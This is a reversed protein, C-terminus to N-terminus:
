VPGSRRRRRGKAVPFSVSMCTPSSTPSYRRRGPLMDWVQDGGEMKAEHDRPSPEAHAWHGLEAGVGPIWHVRRNCRRCHLLLRGLERELEDETQLLEALPPAELGLLPDFTRDFRPTSTKPMAALRGRAPGPRPFQAGYLPAGRTMGHERAAPLIPGRVSDARVPVPRHRTTAGGSELDPCAAVEQAREGRGKVHAGVEDPLHVLMGIGTLVGLHEHVEISSSM